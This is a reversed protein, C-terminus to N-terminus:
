LRLMGGQLRAFLSKDIRVFAGRTPDDFYVADETAGPDYGERILETKTHKFTPTVDLASRIRLFLPRAYAPLRDALQARLAALDLAPDAVVAAMGARGDTGPIEV